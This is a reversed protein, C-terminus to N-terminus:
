SLLGSFKYIDVMVEEEVVAGEMMDVMIADM